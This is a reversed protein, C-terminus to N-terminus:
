RGCRVATSGTEFAEQAQPSAYSTAAFHVVGILSQLQLELGNRVDEDTIKLAQELGRDFSALAERAAARGWAIRGANLWHTAAETARNAESFHRAVYEPDRAAREPDEKVIAEAIVEHLGAGVDACSPSM